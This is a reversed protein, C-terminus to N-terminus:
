KHNATKRGTQLFEAAGEEGWPEVACLGVVTDRTIEARGNEFHSTFCEFGHTAGNAHHAVGIEMRAIDLGGFGGVSGHAAFPAGRLGFAIHLGSGFVAEGPEM